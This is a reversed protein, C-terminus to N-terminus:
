ARALAPSIRRMRNMAAQLSRGPCLTPMLERHTRLRALPVHHATMRDALFRELTTLQAATPSQIEFNGLNLVGLNHPNHDRVHAGQYALPRGQWVRGFPDVIYHYGIDGWGRSQHAHRIGDIRAAVDRASRLTVPPMGDHHVTITSVVGLRTM